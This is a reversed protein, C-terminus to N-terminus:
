PFFFSDTNELDQDEGNVTVYLHEAEDSTQNYGIGNVEIDLMGQSCNAITFDSDILADLMEAYTDYSSYDIFFIDAYYENDDQDYVDFEIGILIFAPAIKITVNEGDFSNNESGYVDLRSSNFVLISQYTMYSLFETENIIDVWNDHAQIYEILVPDIGLVMLYVGGVRYTQNEEDIIDTENYFTMYFDADIGLEIGTECLRSSPIIIPMILFFSPILAAIIAIPVMYSLTKNRSERMPIECGRNSM